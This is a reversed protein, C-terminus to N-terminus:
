YIEIHAGRTARCIDLRYEVETWTAQLMNPTVTAMADRIRTKLHQLNNIKVQYVMNKVYGWLFFDLPTLDPSRPPWTTPGGRGIWRGPMERDLHERVLHHFHPPAGDQQFTTHQPLQPLAYQELMDLYAIGVVTKEIFFFPGIVMNHMLGAWVNVKPTGRELECTVHPNEDGWIRCNHRNVVGSVHFTAEDSFCVQQLYDPSADVRQLMESAFDSRAVKDNAKLAHLMQIKYARLRLRKHLVDHVTSRPIQLQLSAARVSKRPSRQFAERIRNVNEASTRPKGPSKIRVLSGTTRLKNDWFRISKRTPPQRGYRTRFRRQVSTVSQLEALWLM